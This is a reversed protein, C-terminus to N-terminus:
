IGQFEEDIIRDPLTFFEPQPYIRATRLIQL